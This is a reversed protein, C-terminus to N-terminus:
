TTPTLERFRSGVSTALRASGPDSFRERPCGRRGSAGCGPCSLSQKEEDTTASVSVSFTSEGATIVDGNRLRVKEVRLSNVKCGNTSELDILDCLPPNIEIVFHERSLLKDEPMPCSVHLSRGVLISGQGRCARSIGLHPGSTVRLVVEM